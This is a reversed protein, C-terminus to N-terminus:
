SGLGAERLMRSLGDGFAVQPTWELLRAAKSVDLVIWPPLRDPEGAVDHHEVPVNRGVISSLARLIDDVSQGDGSGVNYVEFASKPELVLAIMRVVDDIHVYDRVNRTDGFLRIPTGMALHKVAVGIFGQLRDTSLLVGYPNGIRLVTATLWGHEVAMRLYQESALKQIGYSSIPGVRAEESLPERLDPPAYVAGGSSAFVVHPCMERERAAQILSLTPLLNSTVDSWLHENSTLPSSVGALHVIVDLGEVFAAADVPSALDGRAWEIDPRSTERLTRTLAKLRVDDRRCLTDVLVAGLFGTAGTVGVHLRPDTM